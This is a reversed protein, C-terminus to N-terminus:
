KSPAEFEERVKQMLEERSMIELATLALARVSERALEDDDVVFVTPENAM